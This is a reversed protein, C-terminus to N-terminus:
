AVEPWYWSDEPSVLFITFSYYVAEAELFSMTSHVLGLVYNAPRSCFSFSTAPTWCNHLAEPHYCHMVGLAPDNETCPGKHGCPIFVVFRHKLRRGWPTTSVCGLSHPSPLFKTVAFRLSFPPMSNGGVPPYSWTPSQLVTWYNEEGLCQDMFGSSPGHHPSYSLVNKSEM